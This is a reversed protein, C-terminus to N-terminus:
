DGLNGQPEGVFPAGRDGHCIGAQLLAASLQKARRHVEAYSSRHRSGDARASIIEVNPFIKAARGLIGTLLLPSSMMTSKVSFGGAARSKKPHSGSPSAGASNPNAPIIARFRQQFPQNNQGGRNLRDSARPLM